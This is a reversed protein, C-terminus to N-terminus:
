FCHWNPRPSKSDDRTLFRSFRLLEEAATRVVRNAQPAAQWAFTDRREIMTDPIGQPLQSKRIPKVLSEREPDEFPLVPLNQSHAYSTKWFAAWRWSRSNHESEYKLDDLVDLYKTMEEGFTQLSFSFHGCAAAVEEFDAQIKESRQRDLEIHKYLEQLADARATNFLGLADTLSQRFHDNITIEYSPPAGFPPERLVGSLTFALSKMSPGLLTIFLEFIDSPARFVSPAAAAIDARSEANDGTEDEESSENPAEDIASLVAVRDKGSKLVHSLSRSLTHPFFITTGPSITGSLPSTMPEKLLAFQTNAASRLGGISQALTEMSKYVIKDLQYIKERGLFYHEYKSERLNKTMDACGSYWASAAGKFEPSALEEESGSLFGHTIMSLMDGLATSSKSMSQRLLARASVRWVVLNVVSTTLIGFILMELVQVVKVNSFVSSYIANEKTVVAIIALSALTCGVNVSPNNLKQKVWGLFGFAGGIFVVLVVTYAVTALGLVSGFFVSTVMSLISVVEAYVVALSAIAGAEVMSGATRAPHFYVTITAVVHKGDLHGLVSSLPSWFTWLSAVMYALTCKLVGRGRSSGM